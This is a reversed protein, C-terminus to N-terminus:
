RQENEVEKDFFLYHILLMAVGVCICCDAFNFVPFDILYFDIFDVVYGLFIRDVFNGLGGAFVLCTGFKLWRSKFSSKRVAFFLVIFLVFTAIVFSWRMDKLLGFAAGTNEVYNFRLIGKILEIKDGNKLYFVALRKTLFDTLILGMALLIYLM